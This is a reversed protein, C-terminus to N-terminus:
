LFCTGRGSVHVRPAYPSMAARTKSFREIASGAGLWAMLAFSGPGRCWYCNGPPGREVIRALLVLM